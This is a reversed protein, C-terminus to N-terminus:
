FWLMKPFFVSTYEAGYRSCATAPILFSPSAPTQAGTHNSRADCFHQIDRSLESPLLIVQIHPASHSTHSLLAPPDRLAPVEGVAPLRTKAMMNHKTGLM